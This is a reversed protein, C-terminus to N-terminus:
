TPELLGCHRLVADIEGAREALEEPTKVPLFRARPGTREVHLWGTDVHDPLQGLLREFQIVPQGDVQKLVSFWDLERTSRLAAADFVFTNTNFVGVSSHDFGAPVRFGEVITMRGGVVAPFGGVDGPLQDVLEVTMPMGSDIHSGVVVPELTAGLNDVNSVTLWRGGGEIFSELLSSRVMAFPLDGHGPAHLSPRGAADTFLEGAPTLRLSVFQSFCSVRNALGLGELHRRTDADTAFSNMLFLPAAGDSASIAQSLKLDLFSRGGAAPVIGKTGGGFRTAMGGNLVAVGLQGTRIAERGIDALRREDESGPEPLRRIAGQPPPAVPVTLRNAEPDHGDTALRRALEAFPLDEFGYQDLVERTAPDLNELHRM